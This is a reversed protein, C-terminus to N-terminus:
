PLRAICSSPSPHIHYIPQEGPRCTYRHAQQFPKPQCSSQQRQLRSHYLSNCVSLSPSGPRAWTGSRFHSVILGHLFGWPSKEKMLLLSHRHTVLTITFISKLNDRTGKDKNKVTLGPEIVSLALSLFIQAATVIANPAHQPPHPYGKKLWVPIVQLFLTPILPM